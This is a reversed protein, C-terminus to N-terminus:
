IKIIKTKEDLISEIFLVEQSPDHDKYLYSGLPNPRNLSNISEFFDFGILSLEKYDINKKFFNVTLAGTSPKCDKFKANLESYDAHKAFYCMPHYFYDSTNLRLGFVPKVLDLIRKSKETSKYSVVYIDTRRGINKFFISKVPCAGNMRVVIDHGEILKGYEADLIRSSNGVIIVSKDKCYKKIQELVLDM